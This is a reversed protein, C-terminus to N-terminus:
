GHIICLVNGVNSELPPTQGLGEDGFGNFPKQFGQCLFDGITFPYVRETNAFHLDPAFHALVEYGGDNRDMVM